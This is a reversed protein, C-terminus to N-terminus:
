LGRTTSACAARDLANSGCGAQDKTDVLARRMAACFRQDMQVIEDRTWGGAPRDDIIRGDDERLKSQGRATVIAV